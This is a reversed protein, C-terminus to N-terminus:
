PFPLRTQKGENCTVCNYRDVKIDGSCSLGEVVGHKMKLLDTSNIHGLRRHWTVGTALDTSALMCQLSAKTKLKYVNHVLEAVGILTNGKNYIKCGLIDFIVQNGNKILQSVSLLNTTLQPVCLGDKVKIDYTFDEVM